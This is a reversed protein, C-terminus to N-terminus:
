VVQGINLNLATCSNELSVFKSIQNTSPIKASNHSVDSLCRLLFVQNDDHLLGALICVLLLENCLFIFNALDKEILESRAM